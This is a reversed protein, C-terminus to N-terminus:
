FSRYPTKRFRQTPRKTQIWRLIDEKQWMKKSSFGGYEFPAPFDKFHKKITDYSIGTMIAVEKKDLLKGEYPNVKEEGIVSNLLQIVTDIKKNQEEIVKMITEFPNEM